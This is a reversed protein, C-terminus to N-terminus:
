MFLPGCHPIGSNFLPGTSCWQSGYNMRFNQLCLITLHVLFMLVPHPILSPFQFQPTQSYRRHPSLPDPTFNPFCTSTFPPSTSSFHPPTHPSIVSHPPRQRPQQTPSHTSKHPTHSGKVESNPSPSCTQKKNFKENGKCVSTTTPRTHTHNPTLTLTPPSHPSVQVESDTFTHCTPNKNFKDDNKKCVTTSLHTTIPTPNHTPTTKPSPPSDRTDKVDKNTLTPVTRVFM